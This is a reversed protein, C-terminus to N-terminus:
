LVTRSCPIYIKLIEWLVEGEAGWSVGDECQMGLGYCTWAAAHQLLFRVGRDGRDLGRSDNAM